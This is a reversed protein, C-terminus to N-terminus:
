EVSGSAAGGVVGFCWGAGSAVVCVPASCAVGVDAVVGVTFAAALGGEVDVVAVSAVGVLWAGVVPGVEFREASGAVSAFGFVGLLPM